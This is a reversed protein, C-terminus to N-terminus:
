CLMFPAEQTADSYAIATLMSNAMHLQALCVHTSYSIKFKTEHVVETKPSFDKRCEISCSKM